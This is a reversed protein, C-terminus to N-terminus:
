LPLLQMLQFCEFEVLSPQMWPCYRLLIVLLYMLLMVFNNPFSVPQSKYIYTLRVEWHREYRSKYNMDNEGFLVQEYKILYFNALDGLKRRISLSLSLFFDFGCWIINHCSMRLYMLLSLPFVCVYAYWICTYIYSPILMLKLYNKSHHSIYM